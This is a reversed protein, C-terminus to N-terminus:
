RARVQSSPSSTARSNACRGASLQTRDWGKLHRFILETMAEAEYRGYEPELERRLERRLEEVRM